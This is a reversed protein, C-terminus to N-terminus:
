GGVWPANLWESLRGIILSALTVAVPPVIIIALATWDIGTRRSQAPPPATEYIPM